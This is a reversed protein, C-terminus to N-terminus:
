ARPWRPMSRACASAWRAAAASASRRASRSPSRTRGHPASGPEAAEALLRRAAAIAQFELQGGGITGLLADASVLMYAGAERPASGKVEVIEVLAAERSAALFRTLADLSSSM